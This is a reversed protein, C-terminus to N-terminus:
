LVHPGSIIQEGTAADASAAGAPSTLTPLKHLKGAATMAQRRKNTLQKAFEYLSIDLKNLRRHNPPLPLPTICCDTHTYPTHLTHTYQPHTNLVSCLTSLGMRISCGEQWCQPSCIRM